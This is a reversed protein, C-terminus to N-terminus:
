HPNGYSMTRAGIRLAMVPIMNLPIAHKRERLLHIASTHGSKSVKKVLLRPFFNMTESRTKIIGSFTGTM